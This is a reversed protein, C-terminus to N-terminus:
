KVGHVVDRSYCATEDRAPDMVLAFRIWINLRDASIGSKSVAALLIYTRSGQNKGFVMFLDRTFPDDEVGREDQM